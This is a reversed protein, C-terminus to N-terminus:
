NKWTYDQRTMCGKSSIPKPYVKMMVVILCFLYLFCILHISSILVMLWSLIHILSLISCGIILLNWMLYGIKENETISYPLKTNLNSWLCRWFHDLFKSDKDLVITRPLGHIRLVKMFFLNVMHSADDSKHCPIFHAIKSFNDVLVFISHRGRKSRPLELVFDMLIDIWPTIFCPTPYVISISFIKKCVNHVDKRIYPWFLHENLVDFTKLKGFHGILCGEHM